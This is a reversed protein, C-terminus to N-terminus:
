LKGPTDQGSGIPELTLRGDEIRVRSMAGFQLESEWGEATEHGYVEALAKYAPMTLHLFGEPVVLRGFRGGRNWKVGKVYPGGNPVIRTRTRGNLEETQEIRVYSSVTFPRGLIRREMIIEARGPELRVWVGDLSVHESLLGAQRALLTRALYGNIEEETLTVSYGRDIANQVVTKLDRVPALTSAARAGDIDGMEQPQCILYFALALFGLLGTVCLTMVMGLCGRSKRKPTAPTKEDM